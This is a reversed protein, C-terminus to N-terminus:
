VENLNCMLYYVKMKKWITGVFALMVLLLQVKKWNQLPARELQGKGYCHVM